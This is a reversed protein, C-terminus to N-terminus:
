SGGYEAKRDAVWKGAFDKGYVLTKADYIAKCYSCGEVNPGQEEADGDHASVFMGNDEEHIELLYAAMNKLTNIMSPGEDEDPVEVEDPWDFTAMCDICFADEDQEWQRFVQGNIMTVADCAVRDSGCQPCVHKTAM